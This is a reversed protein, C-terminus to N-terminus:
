KLLLVLLLIGGGLLLLTTPNLTAGTAPAPGYYPYALTPSGLAQNLNSSAGAVAGQAISGLLDGFDFTSGGGNDPYSYDNSFDM